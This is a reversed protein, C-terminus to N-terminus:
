CCSSIPPRRSRTSRRVLRSRPRGVVRIRERAHVFRLCLRRCSGGAPAVQGRYPCRDPRIRLDGAVPLHQHVGAVATMGLHDREQDLLPGVHVDQRGGRVTVPRQVARHLELLGSRLRVAVRLRHPQQERVAGVRHQAAAVVQHVRHGHGGHAARLEHRHQQLADRAIEIEVGRARDGIVFLTARM